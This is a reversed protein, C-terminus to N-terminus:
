WNGRLCAVVGREQAGANDNNLYPAVYVKKWFQMGYKMLSCIKAKANLLAWAEKEM